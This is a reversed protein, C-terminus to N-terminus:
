APAEDFVQASEPAESPGPESDQLCAVIRPVFMPVNERYDAYSM